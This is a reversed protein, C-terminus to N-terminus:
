LYMRKAATPDTGKLIPVSRLRTPKTIRSRAAAAGSPPQEIFDDVKVELCGGCAASYVKFQAEIWESAALIGTGTATTEWARFRTQRNNFSV